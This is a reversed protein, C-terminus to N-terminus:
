DNDDYVLGPFPGHQWVATGGGLQRRERFSSKIADGPQM